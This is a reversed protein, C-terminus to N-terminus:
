LSDSNEVLEGVLIDIQDSIIEQLDPVNKQLWDIIQPEDNGESLQAYEILQDDSLSDIIEMGIRENLIDQMHDTLLDVTNADLSVELQNLLKNIIENSILKTM